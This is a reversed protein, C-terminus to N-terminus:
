IWGRLLAGSGKGGRLCLAGFVGREVWQPNRSKEWGYFLDIHHDFNEPQPPLGWQINMLRRHSSKAWLSSIMAELECFAELTPKLRARTLDYIKGLQRRM